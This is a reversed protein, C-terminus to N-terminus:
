NAFKFTSLIQDLWQEDELTNGAQNTAQVSFGVIFKDGKLYKTLYKGVRVDKCIGLCPVEYRLILGEYNNIETETYDLNIRDDSIPKNNELYNQISLNSPNNIVQVVLKQSQNENQNLLFGIFDDRSDNRIYLNEPYKFSFGYTNSKYTKWSAIPDTISTPSLAPLSTPQPAIEVNKMISIQEELYSVKQELSNIAEENTTKQWFYVALGAVVATLIVSAAVIVFLKNNSSGNQQPKTEAEM